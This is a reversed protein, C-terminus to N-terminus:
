ATHSSVSAAPNISTTFPLPVISAHRTTNVTLPLACSSLGPRRYDFFGMVVALAATQRPRPRDPPRDGHLFRLRGRSHPRHIRFRLEGVTFSNGLLRPSRNSCRHDPVLFWSGGISEGSAHRPHVRSHCPARFMRGLGLLLRANVSSRPGRSSTNPSFGFSVVHVWGAHVLLSPSVALRAPYVAVACRHPTDAHEGRLRDRNWPVGWPLRWLSYHDFLPSIENPFGHVPAM